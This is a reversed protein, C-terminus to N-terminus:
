NLAELTVLHLGLSAALSFNMSVQIGGVNAGAADFTVLTGRVAFAENIAATGTGAAIFSANATVSSNTGGTLGLTRCICYVQLLFPVNTQGAPVGNTISSGMSPSGLAIGWRVNMVCTSASANTTILGCATLKWVKGPRFDAAQIAIQSTNPFIIVDTAATLTVTSNSIALPESVLDRYYARSM